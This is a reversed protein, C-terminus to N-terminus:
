HHLMQSRAVNRKSHNMMPFPVINDVFKILLHGAIM